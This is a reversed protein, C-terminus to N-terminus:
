VTYFTLLMLAMRYSLFIAGMAVALGAAMFVRLPGRLGDVLGAAFYLYTGCASRLSLIRGAGPLRSGPRRLTAACRNSGAAVGV